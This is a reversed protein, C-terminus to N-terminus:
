AGPASATPAASTPQDGVRSTDGAQPTPLLGAAPQSRKTEIQNALRALWGFRRDTITVTILLVLLVAAVLFVRVLDQRYGTTPEAAEGRPTSPLAPNTERGPQGTVPNAIPAPRNTASSQITAAVQARIAKKWQQNKAM